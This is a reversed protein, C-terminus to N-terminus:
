TDADHEHTCRLAHLTAQEESCRDDARLSWPWAADYGARRATAIIDAPLRTSGRTPYEGLLVPADSWTVRPRRGLPTRPELHDYWHVQLVDLDLDRCLPLGLASALGVTVPHPSHWRVHLALESLCQRVRASSFRRAPPRWPAVLWDPENWLDWMAVGPHHGFAGVFQDVVRWLAHRAIPDKLVHARGGLPVGDVVRRADAWTFDFLVPAMRLGQAQLAALAASMDDLVVPQLALPTGPADFAIGARGDCLVFWRVVRAGARAAAELSRHLDTLDRASLGGVSSWANAGFDGGYRLWPLNVGSPIV